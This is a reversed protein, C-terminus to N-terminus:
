HCGHRACANQATIEEMANAKMKDLIDQVTKGSTCYAKIGAENLKQVARMGMGMCVVADIEKGVFANLPHCMGHSHHQNNNDIYEMENTQTSCILFGPASGFHDHVISDKGNNDRVPICIKM